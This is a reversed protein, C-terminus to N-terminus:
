ICSGGPLREYYYYGKTQRFSPEACSGTVYSLRLPSGGFTGRECFFYFFSRRM